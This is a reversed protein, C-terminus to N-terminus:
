LGPDADSYVQNDAGLVGGCEEERFDVLDPLRDSSLFRAYNASVQADACALRVGQEGAKEHSESRVTYTRPNQEDEIQIRVRFRYTM